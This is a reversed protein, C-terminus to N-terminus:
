HSGMQLCCVPKSQLRGIRMMKHTESGNLYMTERGLSIDHVLCDSHRSNSLALIGVVDYLNVSLPSSVNMHAIESALDSRTPKHCKIVVKERQGGEGLLEVLVAVAQGGWGLIKSISIELPDLVAKVPFYGQQIQEEVQALAGPREQRLALKGYRRYARVPQERGPRSGRPPRIRTKPVVLNMFHSKRESMNWRRGEGRWFYDFYDYTAQIAFKISDYKSDEPSYGDLLVTSSM